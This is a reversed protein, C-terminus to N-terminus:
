VEGNGNKPKYCYRGGRLNCVPLPFSENYRGCSQYDPCMNIPSGNEVGLNIQKHDPTEYIGQRLEYCNDQIWTIFEFTYEGNCQRLLEFYQQRKSKKGTTANTELSM